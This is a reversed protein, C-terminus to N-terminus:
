EVCPKVREKQVTGQPQETPGLELGDHTAEDVLHQPTDGPEERTERWRKGHSFVSRSAGHDACEGTDGVLM